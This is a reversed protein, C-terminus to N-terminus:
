QAAKVRAVEQAVHPISYCDERSLCCLLVAPLLLGELEMAPFHIAATCVKHNFHRHLRRCPALRPKRWYQAAM